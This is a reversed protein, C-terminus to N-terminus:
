WVRCIFGKLYESEPFSLLVPHDPSQTLREVIHVDRQADSAAGFVIKQFFEASVLGSCSFTALIGGPQLIQLAQLNIDKYGRAAREIQAQSHAFKPPDLVILDFRRGENRYRRLAQFVDDVVYEAAITTNALNTRAMALAVASTDILTIRAAGAQAACAAFGGSYAFGDLMDAGSSYAAVRMRNVAQDLYFGTKQGARLDAVLPPTAAATGPLTVSQLWLQPPPTAGSRLGEAPAMGEKERVEADSREYIGQPALLHNLGAIIADARREMARTLLQIVLYDSYRDVILGPLHDAESFVLRCAGAGAPMLLSRSQVAREITSQLWRDDLPQDPDWCCARVRIQSRSNWFGRACWEGNSALVDISDGDAPAGHVSAVAGSFIWPHRQLVPRERGPRLTISIM